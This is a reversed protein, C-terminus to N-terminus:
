WCCEERDRPADYPLRVFEDRVREDDPLTDIYSLDAPLTDNYDKEVARWLERVRSPRSKKREGPQAMM